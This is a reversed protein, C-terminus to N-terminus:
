TFTALTQWHSYSVVPQCHSGEGKRKGEEMGRRCGTVRREGYSENGRGERGDGEKGEKERGTGPDPAGEVAPHRPTQGRFKKSFKRAIQHFKICAPLM